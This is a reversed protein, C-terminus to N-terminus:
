SATSLQYFFIGLYKVSQIDLLRTVDIPNSMRIVPCSAYTFYDNTGGKALPCSLMTKTDPFFLVREIRKTALLKGDVSFIQKVQGQKWKESEVAASGVAASGIPPGHDCIEHVGCFQIMVEMMTYRGTPEPIAGVVYDCDHNTSGVNSSNDSSKLSDSSYYETSGTSTEM